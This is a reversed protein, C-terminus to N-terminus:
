IIPDEEEIRETIAIKGNCGKIYKCFSRPLLFMSGCFCKFKSDIGRLITKVTNGSFTATVSKQYVWKIHDKYTSKHVEFSRMVVIHSYDKILNNSM